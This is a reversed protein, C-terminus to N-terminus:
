KSLVGGALLQFVFVAVALVSSVPYLYAVVRICMPQFRRRLFPIRDLFKGVANHYETLLVFIGAYLIVALWIVICAIVTYIALAHFSVRYQYIPPSTHVILLFVILECLFLLLMVVLASFWALRYVGESHSISGTNDAPLPHHPSTANANSLTTDATTSPPM